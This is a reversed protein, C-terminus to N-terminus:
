ADEQQITAPDPTSGSLVPNHTGNASRRERVSNKAKAAIAEIEALRDVQEKGDYNGDANEGGGFDKPMARTYVQLIFKSRFDSDERCQKLLTFAAACPAHKLSHVAKNDINDMVWLIQKEISVADGTTFGAAKEATVDPMEGAVLDDPEIDIDGPAKLERGDDTFVKEAKEQEYAELEPKLREVNGISPRKAPPKKAKQEGPIPADSGVAARPLFEELCRRTAEAPRVGESKLQDRKAIFPGWTGARIM